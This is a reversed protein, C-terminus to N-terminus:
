PNNERQRRALRKALANLIRRISGENLGTRAAVEGTLNGDRKLHLIDLHAAPCLEVLQEWLEETQMIDIPQPNSGVATDATETDDM